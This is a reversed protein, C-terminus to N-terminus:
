KHYPRGQKYLDLRAKFDASTASDVDKALHSIALEQLRIAERFDGTEAFAAALTDMYWYKKDEASLSIVKQAYRIAKQGDRFRAEPATALTWALGNLADIKNPEIELAKEFSKTAALYDGLMHSGLGASTYAVANAPELQLSRLADDVAKRWEGGDLYIGARRRLVEANGPDLENAKNFDQLATKDDRLRKSSQFCVGRLLYLSAAERRDEPSSEIARSFDIIASDFQGRRMKDRGFRVSSEYERRREDPKGIDKPADAPRKNKEKEIEEMAAALMERAKDKREQEEKLIRSDTSPAVPENERAAIDVLRSLKERRARLDSNEPQLRIAVDLDALAEKSQGSLEYIWARYSYADAYNKDIGIAKNLDALAADKGDGRLYVAGARQCLAAAALEPNTELVATLEKIAEDFRMKGVKVQSLKIRVIGYTKAPVGLGRYLAIAASLDTEAEAANNKMLYAAGRLSLATAMVVLDLIEQGQNKYRALLAQTDRPQGIGAKKVIDAVIPEIKQVAQDVSGSMLLRESEGLVDMQQQQSANMVPVLPSPEVPQAKNENSAPKLCQGFSNDGAAEVISDELDYFDGSWPDYDSYYEELVVTHFGGAAIKATKVYSEDLEIYGSGWPLDCQGHSNSGTAYADCIRNGVPGLAVTHAGGAAIATVHRWKGVSCQGESNDGSATVRGAHNRGVSHAGGAAIEAINAWRKVNCQGYANDGVAVVTGDNRLGLTHAGGASVQIINNWGAVNCQGSANDGVAVVTGNTKLGVTHAKGAAVQRIGGWGDTDCQGDLNFGIAVVMGSRTLGVTHSGGAAIQVIKAWKDVNCQGYENSGVAVVSGDSILVVTHARGAAIDVPQVGDDLCVLSNVILVIAIALCWPRWRALARNM